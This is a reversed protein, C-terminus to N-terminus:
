RSAEITLTLADEAGLILTLRTPQSPQWDQLEVTLSGAEPRQALSRRDETWLELRGGCPFEGQIRLVGTAGEPRYDTTITLAGVETVWQHTQVQHPQVRLTLSALIERAALLSLVMQQTPLATEYSEPVDEGLEALRETLSSYGSRAPSVMVVGALENLKLLEDPFFSEVSKVLKAGERLSAQATQQCASLLRSLLADPLAIPLALRRLQALWLSNAQLVAEVSSGISESEYDMMEDEWPFLPPKQQIEAQLRHKLLAYFRDQVAPQEGSNLPLEEHLRPRLLSSGLFRDALRDLSEPPLNEPLSGDIQFARLLEIVAKQYAESDHEM